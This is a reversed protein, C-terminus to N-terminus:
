SGGEADRSADADASGDLPAVGADPVPCGKIDGEPSLIWTVSDGGPPDIPTHAQRGFLRQGGEFQQAVVVEITHCRNPDIAAGSPVIELVQVRDGTSALSSEGGSVLGTGLQPNYDIYLRWQFRVRPDVLEVPVVLKSPLAALVTSPGPVVSSRVIIPRFQPIDSVDSVPEAIICAAFAVLAVSGAVGRLVRSTRPHATM